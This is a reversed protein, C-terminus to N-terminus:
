AANVLTYILLGLVVSAVLVFMPFKTKQLEIVEPLVEVFVIFLIIGSSIGLLLSMALSSMGSIYYGLITGLITPFGTLLSLLTIKAKKMGGALLPSAIAMGEPINHLGIIITLLNGTGSDFRATAGMAIGEPLKHLAMAIFVGIGLKLISHTHDKITGHFDTHEDDLNNSNHTIDLNNITRQKKGIRSTLFGLSLAVLIGLVIGGISIGIGGNSISDPILIFCALSIMIGSAFALFSSIFREFKKGIIIVILAGLTTGVVGVISAYLIISM